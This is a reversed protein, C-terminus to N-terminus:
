PSTQAAHRCRRLFRIQAIKSSWSRGLLNRVTCHKQLTNTYLSIRYSDGNNMTGRSHPTVPIASTPVAPSFLGAIQSAATWKTTGAQLLMDTPSVYGTKAHERLRRRTDHDSGDDVVIIECDNRGDIQGCLATLTAPLTGARNHTPIIVSLKMGNQGPGVTERRDM